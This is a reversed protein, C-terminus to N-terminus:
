KNYVKFDESAKDWNVVNWWAEIYEARRNQYQLYYSHEWVDIGIIPMNGHMIPSNQFSHRKLKLTGDVTLILFAWGSGFVGMAKESFGKKFEEFSGFTKNIADLLEGKPEGGGKPKMIEWFFSHNAHGGGHNIVAQKFGEPVKDLNQLLKEIPMRLLQDEGKLAENLKDVYAGHHKDHHLKMTTEDIYPELASFSYPLDPLTFM